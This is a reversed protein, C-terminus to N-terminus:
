LRAQFGQQYGKRDTVSEEILANVNPLVYEGLTLRSFHRSSKATQTVSPWGPEVGMKLRFM